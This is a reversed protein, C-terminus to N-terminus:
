VTIKQQSADLQQKAQEVSTITKRYNAGTISNSAEDEDTDMQEKMQQRWANYAVGLQSTPNTILGNEQLHLEFGKLGNKNQEQIMFLKRNPIRTSEDRKVQMLLQVNFIKTHSSFKALTPYSPKKVALQTFHNEPFLMKIIRNLSFQSKNPILLSFTTIDTADTLQVEEITFLLNEGYSYTESTVQTILEQHKLNFDSTSIGLDDSNPTLLYFQGQSYKDQILVFTLKLNKSEAQRQINWDTLCQTIQAEDM